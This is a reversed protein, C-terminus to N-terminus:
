FWKLHCEIMLQDMRIWQKTQQTIWTSEQKREPEVQHHRPQEVNAEVGQISADDLVHCGFFVTYSDLMHHKTKHQMYSRPIDTLMYYTTSPKTSCTYHPHLIYIYIPIYIVSKCKVKAWNHPCTGLYRFFKLLLRGKGQCYTLVNIYLM